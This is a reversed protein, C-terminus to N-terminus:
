EANATKVANSPQQQIKCQVAKLVHQPTDLPSILGTIDNYTGIYYLDFDDPYKSVMSKTDQCLERFSREAEGHTKQFFPTNFIEAKQDRITFAKLEMKQSRTNNEAHNGIIEQCM